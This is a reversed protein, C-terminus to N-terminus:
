QDLVCFDFVTNNLIADWLTTHENTLIDFYFFELRIKTFVAFFQCKEPLFHSFFSLYFLFPLSKFNRYIGACEGIRNGVFQHFIQTLINLLNTTITAGTKFFYMELFVLKFNKKHM